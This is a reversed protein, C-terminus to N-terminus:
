FRIETFFDFFRNVSMFNLQYDLNVTKLIVSRIPLLVKPCRQENIAKIYKSDSSPV